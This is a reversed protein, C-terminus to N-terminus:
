MEEGGMRMVFAVSLRLQLAGLFRPLQHFMFVLAVGLRANSPNMKAPAIQWIEGPDNCPCAAGPGNDPAWGAGDPWDGVCGWAWGLKGGLCLM